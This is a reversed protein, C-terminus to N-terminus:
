TDYTEEKCSDVIRKLIEREKEKIAINNDIYAKATKLLAESKDYADDLAIIDEFAEHLLRMGKNINGSKIWVVAIKPLIFAYDLPHIDEEKNASLLEITHNLLSIAKDASGISLFIDATEILLYVGTLGLDDHEEVAKIASNLAMEAVDYRKSLVAQRAIAIYPCDIMACMVCEDEKVLSMSMAKEWEKLKAYATIVERSKTESLRSIKDLLEYARGSRGIDAYSGAIYALANIKNRDSYFAYGSYVTYEAIIRDAIEEAKNHQGIDCYAEAILKILRNDAPFLLGNSSYMLTDELLALAMDKNNKKILIRAIEIVDDYYYHEIHAIAAANYRDKNGDFLNQRADYVAKHALEYKDIYCYAKASEILSNSHLKQVLNKSDNLIEVAKRGYGRKACFVALTDAQEIRSNKHSIKQTVLFVHNILHEYSDGISYAPMFQRAMANEYPVLAAAILGTGAKLFDRRNLM